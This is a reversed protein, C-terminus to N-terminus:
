PTQDKLDLRGTAGAPLPQYAQAARAVQQPEALRRRVAIGRVALRRSDEEDAEMVQQVLTRIEVLLPEVQRRVAAPAPDAGSGSAGGWARWAAVSREVTPQVDRLRDVIAQKANLVHLLAATEGTEILRRQRASLRGLSRYLRALTELSALVDTPSVAEVSVTGV